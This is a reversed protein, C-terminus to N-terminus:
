RGLVHRRRLAVGLRFCGLGGLALVWTYNPFGTKGTEPLTQLVQQAQVQALAAQLRAVTEPPLTGQLATIQGNHVRAEVLVESSELGLQRFNDHALTVLATV